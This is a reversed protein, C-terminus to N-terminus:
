EGLDGAWFDPDCVEAEIVFPRSVKVTKGRAKRSLVASGVSWLGEATDMQFNSLMVGAHSVKVSKGSYDDFLTVTGSTLGTARVLKFTAGSVKDLMPKDGELLLEHEAEDSDRYFLYTNKYYAQLNSVKDYWGGWPNLTEAFGSFEDAATDYLATTADDIWALDLDSDVLASGDSADSASVLVLEGGFLRTATASFVPLVLRYELSGAWSDDVLGQFAGSVSASVATGDALRGAVKTKGRENVTVTLYGYGTHADVSDVAQPVLGVTYYGVFKRQAAVVGASASNDRRLAGVFPVGQNEADVSATKGDANPVCIRLTVTGIPGGLADLDDLPADRVAVELENTYPKGGIKQVNTLVATLRDDYEDKMVDEDDSEELQECSDYGTGAFTYTKGGLLVKASLKGASTASFTLSAMRRSALEALNGDDRLLATFSGAAQGLADVVFDLTLTRCATKGVTGGLTVTFNGPASPVGSVKWLGSRAEKALKLGAPLKGSVVSIKAADTTGAVDLTWDVKVGQHLVVVDNSVAVGYVDVASTLTVVPRTEPAVVSFTWVAKGPAVMQEDSGDDGYLYDVRWYYTKDTSLMGAPIRVSSTAVNTSVLPAKDLATKSEAIRVRYHLGADDEFDEALEDVNWSLVTGEPEAPLVSKDRPSPTVNAFSIWTFPKDEEYPSGFGAVDETADSPSAYTFRLTSSGSPVVLEVDEDAWDSYKGLSWTFEGDHDGSCDMWGTAAFFGPGTLKVNLTTKKKGKIPKTMLATGYETLYWGNGSVSAGSVKLRKNLDTMTEYVYDDRLTFAVSSAALAVKAYGTEAKSALKVSFAKSYIGSTGEDNVAAVWVVKEGIEGDAWEVTQMKNTIDPDDGLTFDVGLKATGPVATVTVKTAGNAAGSRVLALGALGGDGNKFMTLAPKKPNEFVCWEDDGDYYGAITVKGSDAKTIESITVVAEPTKVEPVREVDDLDEAEPAWLKVHFSKDAERLATVDPMLRIRIKHAGTKNEAWALVGNTAYYESGPLATDAVTAFFVRTADSGSKNVTLEVYAASEKVSVTTKAFKVVAPTALLPCAALMLLFMVSRKKM